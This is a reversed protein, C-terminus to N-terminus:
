AALWGGWRFLHPYHFFHHVELSIFIQGLVVEEFYVGLALYAKYECGPTLPRPEVSLM